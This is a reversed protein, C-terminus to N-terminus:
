RCGRRCRSRSRWERRWDHVISLPGIEPFDLMMSQEQTSVAELRPGIRETTGVPLRQSAQKGGIEPSLVDVTYLFHAGDASITLHNAAFATGGLPRGNGAILEAIPQQLVPSKERRYRLDGDREHVESRLLAAHQIAGPLPRALKADPALG